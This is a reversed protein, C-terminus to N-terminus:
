FDVWARVNARTLETAASLPLTRDAPSFELVDISGLRQKVAALASVVSERDRVDTRFADSIIGLTALEDVLPEQTALSRSLLAVRYGHAGFMKAIALGM